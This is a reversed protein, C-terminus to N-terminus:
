KGSLSAPGELIFRWRAEADEALAPSTTRPAPMPEEEEKAAPEAGGVVTRIGVDVSRTTTPAGQPIVGEFFDSDEGDSGEGLRNLVSDQDVSRFVSHGSTAKREAGDGFFQLRPDEEPPQPAVVSDDSM